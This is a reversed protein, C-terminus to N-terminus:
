GTLLVVSIMFPSSKFTVGPVGSFGM